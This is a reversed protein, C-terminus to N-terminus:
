TVASAITSWSRRPCTSRWSSMSASCGFWRPTNPWRMTSSGATSRRFCGPVSPSPFSNAPRSPAWPTPSHWRLLVECSVVTGDRDLAPMYVLRLQDDGDLTRLQDEILRIRENRQELEGNFAVVTNKGEAKAQYMASDARTLLQSISDAYDPYRATGISLSVPYLRDELRFGGRCSCHKACSM